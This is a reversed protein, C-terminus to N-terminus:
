KERIVWMAETVKELEELFYLMDVPNISERHSYGTV